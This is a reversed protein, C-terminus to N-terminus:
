DDNHHDNIVASRELSMELSELRARLTTRTIGLRKAAQTLNGDTARLVEAFIEREAISVLERHIDESGAALRDRTMAAFDIGAPAANNATPSANAQISHNRLGEPLYAPVIVPGTAELLSHKIASQLERVNGPWAYSRLIEIAESAIGTMEKGLEKAFRKLFYNALLAIDNGRERLPPLKITYVNLRYYLDSRFEKDEIAKELNRNTAAIIRANTRITETGGVREFTQDQLVRLIKTQMLPTMDGIEDLLLTGDNCLEFKGVKKRDAGTFSGKEHGFLESELLNEPIAACNIALFRGASRESYQYIARAIVEKGTGSEGLILATVNQRAVRGISRYVEQMAPCNGILLDNDSDALSDEVSADPVVARVRTMRSTEAADEILPILTDPDLPKLIYEFAGRQMAEIATQATGRGTMLIIPVKADIRHLKEFVEMGSMDPMRIDCLVVDPSSDLFAQVGEQATPCTTVKDDPFAMEITELILPEDDIVLLHTM